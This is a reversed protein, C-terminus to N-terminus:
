VAFFNVSKNQTLKQNLKDLEEKNLLIFYYILYNNDIPFIFPFIYPQKIVSSGVALNIDIQNTDGIIGRSTTLISKIYSLESRLGLAYLLIEKSLYNESNSLGTQSWAWSWIKYKDYYVALIEVETELVIEKTENDRFTFTSREYDTTTKYGSYYTYKKLYRIVPKASDYYILANSIISSVDM